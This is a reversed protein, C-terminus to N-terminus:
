SHASKDAIHEDLNNKFLVLKKGTRRITRAMFVGAITGLVILCFMPLAYALLMILGSICSHVFHHWYFEEADYQTESSLWKSGGRWPNRYNPYYNCGLVKNFYLEHIKNLGVKGDDIFAWIFAGLQYLAPLIFGGIIFTTLTGLCIMQPIDLNFTVNKEKEGLIERRLTIIKTTVM